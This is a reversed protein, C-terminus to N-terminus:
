GPTGQNSGQTVEHMSVMKAGSGTFNL